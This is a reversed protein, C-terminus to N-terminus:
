FYAYGTPRGPGDPGDRYHLGSFIRLLLEPPLSSITVPAPMLVLESLSSTQFCSCSNDLYFLVFGSKYLLKM